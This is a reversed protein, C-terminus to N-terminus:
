EYDAEEVTTDGRANLFCIPVDPHDPILRNTIWARPM